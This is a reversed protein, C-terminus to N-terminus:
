KLYKSILLELQKKAGPDVKERNTIIAERLSENCNCSPEEALTEVLAIISKRAIETNKNLTAVVMNVSVAEESIHWVDFDTVHAM